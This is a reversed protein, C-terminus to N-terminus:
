KAQKVILHCGMLKCVIKMIMRLLVIKVEIKPGRYSMSPRKRNSNYKPMKKKRKAVKKSPLKYLETIMKLSSM